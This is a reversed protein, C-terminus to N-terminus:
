LLKKMLFITDFNQIALLNIFITSPTGFMFDHYVNHKRPQTSIKYDLINMALRSHGSSEAFAWFCVFTSCLFSSKHWVFKIGFSQM